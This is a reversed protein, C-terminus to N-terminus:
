AAFNIIAKGSITIETTIITVNTYKPIPLANLTNNWTIAGSKPFNASRLVHTFANSCTQESKTGM